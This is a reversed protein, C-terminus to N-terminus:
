VIVRCCNWPVCCCPSAPLRLCCCRICPTPRLNSSLLGYLFVSLPQPMVPQGQLIFLLPLYCFAIHLPSLAATCTAYVYMHLTASSFAPISNLERNRRCCLVVGTGGVLGCRISLLNWPELGVVEVILRQELGWGVQTLGEVQQQLV